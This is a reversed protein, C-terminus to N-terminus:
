RRRTSGRPWPRGDARAAAPGGLRRGTSPCRCIADERGFLLLAGACIVTTGGRQELLGLARAVDHDDLDALVRDGYGASERILRRFREFELPDLDNWTADPVPLASYDVAGRDIEHALMEHAHIPICTPKGDGGIARRQYMGRTTGVIRPSNEVQVCLVPTGDIEITSVATQVPPQTSNAILAQLRQPDTRNGHRPRAGTVLGSDEVGLLLLGGHGNALCVVAEILERDGLSQREEGKFEVSLTEGGDIAARVSDADLLSFSILHSVM